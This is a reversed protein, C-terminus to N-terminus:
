FSNVHVPVYYGPRPVERTDGPSPPTRLREFRLWKPKIGLSGFAVGALYLGFPDGGAWVIYDTEDNFEKDLLDYIKTYAEDPRSSPNEYADFIFRITGYEQAPSVDYTHGHPGSKPKQCVWVTM